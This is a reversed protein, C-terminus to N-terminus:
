SLEKHLWECLPVWVERKRRSKSREGVGQKWPVYPKFELLGAAVLAPEPIAELPLPVIRLGRERQERLLARLEVDRIFPSKLFPVSVLLLAADAAGIASRIQRLWQDGPALQEDVWCAVGIDDMTELYSTLEAQLERDVHSYCVFVRRGRRRKECAIKVSALIQEIAYPKTLFTSHPAVALVSRVLETSAERSTVFIIPADHVEALLRTTRVGETRQAPEGRRPPLGVDMLVVDPRHELTMALAEETSAAIGVVTHGHRELQRRLPLGELAVEDEVILVREGM